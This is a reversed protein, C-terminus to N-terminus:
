LSSEEYSPTPAILRTQFNGQLLFSIPLRYRMFSVVLNWWITSNRAEKERWVPQLFEDRKSSDSMVSRLEKQLVWPSLRECYLPSSAGRSGVFSPSTSQVSFHPVFKQTCSPCVTTYNNPDATRWGAVIESDSMRRNCRPCAESNLEIVIDPYVLELLNEGLIIQMLVPQTVVLEKEKVPKAQMELNQKANKKGRLSSILNGTRRGFAAVGKAKPKGEDEEALGESILKSFTSMRHRTEAVLSRRRLSNWDMELTM